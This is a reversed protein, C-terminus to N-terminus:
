INKLQNGVENMIDDEYERTMVDRPYGHVLEDLNNLQWNLFQKIDSYGWDDSIGLLCNAALKIKNEISM